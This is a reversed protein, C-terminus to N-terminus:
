IAQELLGRRLQPGPQRRPQDPKQSVFDALLVFSAITQYGPRYIQFILALQSFGLV